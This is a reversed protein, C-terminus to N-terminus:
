RGKRSRMDRLDRLDTTLQDRDRGSLTNHDVVNKVDDIAQDLKGNDFKGKALNRDVDSLHRQANDYREKEKAAEKGTQPTFNMAQRLDGQVRGVLSRANAYMETQAM